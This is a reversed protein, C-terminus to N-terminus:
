NDDLRLCETWHMWRSVDADDDLSLWFHLKIPQSHGPEPLETLTEIFYRGSQPEQWHQWSVAKGLLEGTSIGAQNWDTHQYAHPHDGLYFGATAADHDSGYFRYVAFDPGQSRHWFHDPIACSHLTGLYTAVRTALAAQDPPQMSLDLKPATALISASLFIVALGNM